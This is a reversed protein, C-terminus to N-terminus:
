NKFWLRKRNHVAWWSNVQYDISGGLMGGVQSEWWRAPGKKAKIIKVNYDEQGAKPQHLIEMVAPKRADLMKKVMKKDYGMMSTTDFGRAMGVDIRAIQGYNTTLMCEFNIGHPFVPGGQKLKGGYEKARGGYVVRKSDQDMVEDLVYGSVYGKENNATPVLGREMQLSHAIVIGTKGDYGMLEVATRLAICLESKPVKVGGYNAQSLRREHVMSHPENHLKHVEDGQIHANKRYYADILMNEKQSLPQGTFMKEALENAQCIFKKQPDMQDVIKVLGPLVGGHVFLWDGIKVIGKTGCKIVKNAWETGPRTKRRRGELGGDRELTKGSVYKFKGHLNMIEHNGLLKFLKGGAEYAELALHNLIDMILEEEGDIEGVLYGDKEISGTRKRDIIDGVIVVFTEGGTWRCSIEGDDSISYKIVKALDQLCILLVELDGHVDGMAIVRPQATYVNDHSLRMDCKNLIDPDQDKLRYTKSKSM